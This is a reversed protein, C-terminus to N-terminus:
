VGIAGSFLLVVAMNPVSESLLGVEHGEKRRGRQVVYFERIVFCVRLLLADGCCGM